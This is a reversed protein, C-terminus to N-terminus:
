VGSAFVPLDGSGRGDRNPSTGRRTSILEKVADCIGNISVPKVLYAQAGASLAEQKNKEFALGSCFLIPTTKDIERIKRCLDVGSGDELNSDLVLLDFPRNIAENLAHAVTSATVVDYNQQSLVLAFLDLTDQHDDVFLIKATPKM